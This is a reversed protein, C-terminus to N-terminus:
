LVRLHKTWKKPDSTAVTLAITRTWGDASTTRPCCEDAAVVGLAISLFDWAQQAPAVRKRAIAKLMSAAVEGDTAVDRTDFLQFRVETGAPSAVSKPACAIRM